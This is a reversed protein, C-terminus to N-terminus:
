KTKSKTIHKTRTLAAQTLPPLTRLVLSGPCDQIHVHVHLALVSACERMIALRVHLRVCVSTYMCANVCLSLAVCACVWM